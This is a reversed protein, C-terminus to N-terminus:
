NGLRAPAGNEPSHWLITVRSEILDVQDDLADLGRRLAAVDGGQERLKAVEGQLNAVMTNLESRTTALENRWPEGGSTAEEMRHEIEAIRHEAMLVFSMSMGLNAGTVLLVWVWTLRRRPRAARRLTRRSAEIQEM